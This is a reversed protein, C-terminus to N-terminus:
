SFTLLYNVFFNWLFVSGIAFIKSFYFNVKMKENFFFLLATNLLLGLFSVSAFLILQTAVHTDANHFTWIRNLFYNNLVACVFGIGNAVFKNWKLHEKLMYTIGFDIILGSSGVVGFKIIKLLM